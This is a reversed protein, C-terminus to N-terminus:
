INNKKARKMPIPVEYEAVGGAMEGSQEKDPDEYDDEGPRELVHYENEEESEGVEETDKANQGASTAVHTFTIM